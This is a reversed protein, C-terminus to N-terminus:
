TKGIGLAVCTVHETSDKPTFLNYGSCDLIATKGHLSLKALLKPKLERFVDHGVTVIICDAKELAGELNVPSYGMEEMEDRTYLPDYVMVYAGKKKLKESLVWSTSLHDEKVNAKFSAGLILVAIRKSGKRCKKALKVATSVVHKAVGENIKRALKVLQADLGVDEAAQILFCPNVPICKGGVIGVRHLKCFPQTNSAESVQKYDLGSHECFLALNNALAINVDRYVNEFVKAAEAARISDMKIFGGKVMLSLAACAAELSAKDLGGVIRPYGKLDQLVQGAAARIPSYALGFDGGAKLGSHKELIERAVAETFGPAITSEFIILSGKRLSQGLTRCVKEVASYDPKKRRDVSTPAAVVVVSCQSAAEKLNSTATLKGERVVRKLLTQLGTETFPATGEAILKVQQLNTDVGIVKAGGEAFLCAIPLGIRGLGVVCVKQKGSKLDATLDQTGLEKVGLSKGGSYEEYVWEMVNM